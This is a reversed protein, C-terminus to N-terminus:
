LEEEYSKCLEYVSQYEEAFDRLQQEKADCEDSTLPVEGLSVVGEEKQADNYVQEARRLPATRVAILEAYSRAVGLATSEAATDGSAKASEANELATNYIEQYQDFENQLVAAKERLQLLHQAKRASALERAEAERLPMEELLEQLRAFASDIKSQKSTEAM